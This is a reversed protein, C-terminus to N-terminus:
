LGHRWPVAMTGPVYTYVNPIGLDVASSTSSPRITPARRRTRGVDRPVRQGHQRRVGAHRRLGADPRAPQPEPLYNTQIALINHTEDLMSPRREYTDIYRGFISHNASMQYDLGFSTSSTTTTSDARQLPHRRVSRDVGPHWGSNVIKVAAPSFLAPDIRNNVFPARLTCRGAATARPPPPATFDGALM